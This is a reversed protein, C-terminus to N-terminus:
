RKYRKSPPQLLMQQIRLWDNAEQQIRPVLVALSSDWFAARESPLRKVETAITTVMKGGIGDIYAQRILNCISVVSMDELYERLLARSAFVTM